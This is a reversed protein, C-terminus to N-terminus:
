LAWLYNSAVIGIREHGLAKSVVGMAKRDLKLGHMDNRAVYVDSQYMHKSGRNVADYPIQDIPRAYNRYLQAAYRARMGHIDAGSHIHPWLKTGAPTTRYRAVIDNVYDGIVPSIRSKGGKGRPVYVFFEEGNTFQDISGFAALKRKEDATLHDDPMGRLRILETGIEDRSYLHEAYTLALEHRRFGTGECFNVLEANTVISFNM